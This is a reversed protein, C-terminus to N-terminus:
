SKEMILKEEGSIRIVVEDGKALGLFDRVDAPLRIILSKGLSGVKLRVAKLLKNLLLIRQTEEPDLLTEGCNECRLGEVEVYSDGFRLRVKEKKMKGGCSFCEKSSM